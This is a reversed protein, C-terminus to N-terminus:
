EPNTSDHFSSHNIRRRWGDIRNAPPTRFVRRRLSHWEARSFDSHWGYVGLLALQQWVALKELGAIPYACVPVISLCLIGMLVEALSAFEKGFSCYLIVLMASALVPPVTNIRVFKAIKEKM